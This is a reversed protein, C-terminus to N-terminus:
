IFSYPICRFFLRLLVIGTRFLPGCDLTVFVFCKSKCPKIKLVLIHRSGPNVLYSCSVLTNCSDEQLALQQHEVRCEASNVKLIVGTDKYTEVKKNKLDFITKKKKSNLTKNLVFDM